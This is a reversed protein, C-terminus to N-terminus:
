NVGPPGMPQQQDEARIPIPGPGGMIAKLFDSPNLSIGLKDSLTNALNRSAINLSAISAPAPRLAAMEYARSWQAIPAATVSKSLARSLLATGVVSGIATLPEVYSGGIAAYGAAGFGAIQGAGILNQATGSPNSFRQWQKSRESVKAIDDLFRRLQKGDEISNFLVQKSREPLKGYDRVFLAASFENPQAGSVPLGTGASKSRGFSGIVAASIEAWEDAPMSRRAQMLLKADAGAGSGALQTIKSFVGEDSKVNLVRMLNERRESILSYYKNAREFAATAQPGGATQVTNALDDSLAGYIQKLEKQSIDGPLLGGKLKEGVSTRLDKIGQYNLGGPRNIAETIERVAGSDGSLAANSRRSLIDGAVRSTSPLPVNINPNVLSDVSDYLRKSKESTVPGVYNELSARASTGAQEATVRAGTPASAAREAAEGLQTTATEGAKRLSSGGVPVNSLSQGVRQVVMSDSAAARPIDVDIRGAAATAQQGPSLSKQVGAFGGGARTVSSIPTAITAMDLSRRIAEEGSPDVRGALVDGPLTVASGVANGIGRALREPWTQYREKTHTAPAAQEDLVFGPPLGEASEDLVFGPPLDTM